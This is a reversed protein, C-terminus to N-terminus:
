ESARVANAEVWTDRRTEGVHLASPSHADRVHTRRMPARMLAYVAKTTCSKLLRLTANM